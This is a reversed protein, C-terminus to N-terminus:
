QLWILRVLNNKLCNDWTSYLFMKLNIKNADELDLLSCTMSSSKMWKITTERNDTSVAFPILHLITELNWHIAVAPLIRRPNGASRQSNNSTKDTLPRKPSLSYDDCFALDSVTNVSPITVVLPNKKCGDHDEPGAPESKPSEWALM